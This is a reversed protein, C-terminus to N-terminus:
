RRQSDALRVDMADRIGDGLLNFALVLFFIACGPFIAIWPAQQLYPYGLRLMSGWAAQPPTVGAGLFSLGAEAIIAEAAMISGYVTLAAVTNPFIHDALIQRDRAGAARAAEVFTEERLSIVQAFMVRAFAPTYTIGVALIINGLSPGLVAAITLALIISPFAWLADMVRMIADRIWSDTYGAIMGLTVGFLMALGVAGFSVACAVRSGHIIRSLIDRGLHDTGFWFEANPPDFTNALSIQNPPYPSIFDALLAALFFASILIAGAINYPNRVFRRLARHRKKPDRRLEAADAGALEEIRSNLFAM